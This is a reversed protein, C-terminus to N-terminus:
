VKGKKSKRWFYVTLLIMVGSIGISMPILSARNNAIDADSSTMIRRMESLAGFSFLGFVISAVKWPNM